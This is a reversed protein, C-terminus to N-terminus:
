AKMCAAPITFSWKSPQAQLYSLFYQEAIREDRRDFIDKLNLKIRQESNRMEKSGKHLLIDNAVKRRILLDHFVDVNNKWQWQCVCKGVGHGVFPGVHHANTHPHHHRKTFLFHVRRYNVHYVRNSGGNVLCLVNETQQVVFGDKTVRLQFKPVPNRGVILGKQTIYIL